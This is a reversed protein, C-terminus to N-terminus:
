QSTVPDPWAQHWHPFHRQHIILIFLFEGFCRVVIVGYPVLHCIWWDKTDLESEEILICFSELKKWMFSCLIQVDGPRRTEWKVMFNWIRHGTNIYYHARAPTIRRFLRRPSSRSGLCGEWPGSPPSSMSVVSSLARPNNGCKIGMLWWWGSAHRTQGPIFWFHPPTPLVVLIILM